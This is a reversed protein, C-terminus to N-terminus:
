YDRKLMIRGVFNEKAIDHRRPIQTGRLRSKEKTKGLFGKKM